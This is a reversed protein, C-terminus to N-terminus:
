TKSLNIWLKTPRASLWSRRMRVTSCHKQRLLALSHNGQPCDAFTSFYVSPCFCSEGTGPPGQVLIVRQKLDLCAVLCKVQSADLVVSHELGMIDKLDVEPDTELLRVLENIGDSSLIETSRVKGRADWFVIEEELPVETMEQLRRLVPEHAYGATNLLTIELETASLISHLAQQTFKHDPFRICLTSAALQAEDRLLKVFAILKGDATIQALSRDPIFETNEKIFTQRHQPRLNKLEPLDQLTKLKLAWPHQGHKKKSDDNCSTGTVKVKHTALTLAQIKEKIEEVWDQRYVRFLNAMYMYRRRALNMEGHVESARWLRPVINSSVEAAIPVISINKFDQFDNEHRPRFIAREERSKSAEHLDCVRQIRQGLLRTNGCPSEALVNRLLSDRAIMLDLPRVKNAHTLLQLLLWAFCQTSQQNVTEYKVNSYYESWFRSGPPNVLASLTRRLLLGNGASQLAPDQLWSLVPQITKDVYEPAIDINFADHLRNLGQKSALLEEVVGIANERQARVASLFDEANSRTDIRFNGSLVKRFFLPRSTPNADGHDSFHREFVRLLSSTYTTALRPRFM